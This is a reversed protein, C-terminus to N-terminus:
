GVYNVYNLGYNCYARDCEPTSLQIRVRAEITNSSAGTCIRANWFHSEARLDECFIIIVGVLSWNEKDM